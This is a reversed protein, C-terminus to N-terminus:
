GFKDNERSRHHKPTTYILITSFKSFTTIIFIYMALIVLFLILTALILMILLPPVLLQRVDVLICIFIEFSTFIRNPIPFTQVCLPGTHAFFDVFM